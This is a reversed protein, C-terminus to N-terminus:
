NILLWEVAADMPSEGSAYTDVFEATYGSAALSVYQLEASIASHKDAETLVGFPLPTTLDALTPIPAEWPKPQGIIGFKTTNTGGPLLTPWVASSAYNQWYAPIGAVTNDVSYFHEWAPLQTQPGFLNILSLPQQISCVRDASANPNLEVVGNFVGLHAGASRGLLDVENFGLSRCYAVLNSVGLEPVPFETTQYGSKAVALGNNLLQKLPLTLKPNDPDFFQGIETQGWGGGTLFVVVRDAGEPVWLAMQELPDAGWQHISPEPTEQAASATAGVFLFISLIALPLKM